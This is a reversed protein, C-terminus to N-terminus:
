PIPVESYILDYSGATGAWILEGAEQDVLIEWRTAGATPADDWRIGTTATPDAYPIQGVTGVPLRTIANDATGVILDGKADILSKPILLAVAAALEVDTAYVDTGPITVLTKSSGPVDTVTVGLGAFDLTPENPLPMGEDAITHGTGAPAAPTWVGGVDTLVEGPVPDVESVAIGQIRRVVNADIPGDWDGAGLPIVSPNIIPQPVVTGLGHSQDILVAVQELIALQLRMFLRELTRRAVPSAVPRGAQPPM